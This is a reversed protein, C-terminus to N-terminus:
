LVAISASPHAVANKAIPECFPSFNASSFFIAASKISLILLLNILIFVVLNLFLLFQIFILKINFFIISVNKIVNTQRIMITKIIDNPTIKIPFFILPLQPPSFAIDPDSLHKTQLLSM